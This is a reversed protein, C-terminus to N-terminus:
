HLFQAFSIPPLAASFAAGVDVRDPSFQYSSFKSVRHPTKNELTTAPSISYFLVVNEIKVSNIEKM